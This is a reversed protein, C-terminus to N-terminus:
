FLSSDFSDKYADALGPLAIELVGDDQAIRVVLTDNAARFVASVDQSAAVLEQVDTLSNLQAYTKSADIAMKNDGAYHRFTGADFNRLLIRDGEGFDVGKFTIREQGDIEAGNYRVDNAVGDGSPTGSPAPAVPSSTGGGSSALSPPTCARPLRFSVGPRAFRM